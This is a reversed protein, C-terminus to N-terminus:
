LPMGFPQNEALKDEVKDLDKFDQVAPFPLKIFDAPTLVFKDIEGIPTTGIITECIYSKIIINLSKLCAAISKYAKKEKTIIQSKSLM